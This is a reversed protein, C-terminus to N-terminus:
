GSAILRKLLTPPFTMKIMPNCYMRISLGIISLSRARSLDMENTTVAPAAYGPGCLMNFRRVDGKPAITDRAGKQAWPLFQPLTRYSLVNQGSVLLLCVQTIVKRIARMITCTEDVKTIVYRVRLCIPCRNTVVHKLQRSCWNGPACKGTSRDGGPQLKDAEGHVNGKTADLYHDEPRTRAQVKVRHHKM